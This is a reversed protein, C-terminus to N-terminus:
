LKIGIMCVDDIQELNGKWNEFTKELETKQDKLSKDQLSITLEELQRYKFKKGRPGGFQDAYGDTFTYIVDGEKLQIHHERFPKTEHHFGCPQKDPLYENFKHDSYVYLSNNAAAYTLVKSNLDLRCIVIDMGDKNEGTSGTQKLTHIIRERLLDLIKAPELIKKENIIEDLFSIGLMTMFGGPVGHGTCDGTVYFTYFRQPPLDSDPSSSVFGVSHKAASREVKTVWYFDGSVIDKPKFLVFSSKFHLNFEQESPILASQIKKAYNISDTIEQNKEELVKKQEEIQHAYKLNEQKFLRVGLFILLSAFLINPYSFYKMWAEMDYYPEYHDIYYVNGVMLIASIVVYVITTKLDDFLINCAVPLFLFYYYSNNVGGFLISFATLFTFGYWITYHFAAKYKGANVLIFSLVNSFLSYLTVSVAIFFSQSVGVISYLASICFIVMNANNFVRLKNRLEFPTEPTIGISTIKKYLSM